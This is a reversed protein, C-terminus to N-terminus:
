TSRPRASLYKELGILLSCTWAVALIELWEVWGIPAMEFITYLPPWYTLLLQLSLM